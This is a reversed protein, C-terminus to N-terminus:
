NANIDKSEPKTEDVTIKRGITDKMDQQYGMIGLAILPKLMELIESADNLFREQAEAMTELSAAINETANMFDEAFEDGKNQKKKKNM